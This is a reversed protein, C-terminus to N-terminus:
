EYLPEKEAAFSCTSENCPCGNKRAWQLVDLHGNEAAYRCTDENWPCGNERAWKLIDLHGNLAACSCTYENWPCGNKRAWKLVKIYGQLAADKCFYLAVHKKSPLQLNSWNKQVFRLLSYEKELYFFIEKSIDKGLGPIEPKELIKL